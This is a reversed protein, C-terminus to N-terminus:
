VKGRGLTKSVRLSDSMASKRDRRARASSILSAASKNYFEDSLGAM